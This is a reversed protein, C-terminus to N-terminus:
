EVGGTFIIDACRSIMKSFIIKSFIKSFIIINEGGTFIIDACRSIMKSVRFLIINEGGTFIIDACRSMMKSFESYYKLIKSVDPEL